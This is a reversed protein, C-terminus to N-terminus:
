INAIFTALAEDAAELDRPEVAQIEVRVLRAEGADVRISEPPTAAPLDPLRLRHMGAQLRPATRRRVRARRRFVTVRDIPARM